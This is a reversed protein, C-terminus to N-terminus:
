ACSNTGPLSVAGVRRARAPNSRSVVTSVNAIEGSPVRAIRESSSGAEPSIIASPTGAIVGSFYLTLADLIVYLIGVGSPPNASQLGLGPVEAAWRWNGLGTGLWELLMTMAFCVSLLLANRSRVILAAAAIWWLLGWEDNLAFYSVAAIVSGLVLTARVIRQEYARLSPATIAALAYFVGHGFPVYLPILAHRYEYLGWALSLVAEGTTAIVIAIAIQKADVRRLLLALFAATALALAGQRVLGPGDLLLIAPVFLAAAALLLKM